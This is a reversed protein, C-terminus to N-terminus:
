AIEKSEGPGITWDEGAKPKSPRSLPVGEYEVNVTEIRVKKDSNNKASLQYYQMRASQLSLELSFNKLETREREITEVRQRFADLQTALAAIQPRADSAEVHRHFATLQEGLTTIDPRPDPTWRRQLYAGLFAGVVASGFAIIIAVVM